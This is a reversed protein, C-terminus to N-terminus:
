GFLAEFAALIEQPHGPKPIIGQVNYNEVVEDIAPSLQTATYLAIKAMATRPDTRLRSLLEPGAIDPLSLDVVIADPGRDVATQLGSLGTGAELVTHGAYELLTALLLRNNQDDDIVLVTAL